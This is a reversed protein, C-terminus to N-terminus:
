EGAQREADILAAMVRILGEYSGAQTPTTVYKGNVVISPVGTLRYDRALFYAQRIKTDIESSNYVRTFDDADVGRSVFFSRLAAETSLPQRDKHIADFLPRHIKNLVDLKLATYYAKAHPIWSQNLVGPLRILEVDEPKNKLWEELFPEFSYCHPCGYWFIEVVEIKDGTQTPQAPSLTTYRDEPVGQAFAQTFVALYLMIGTTATIINRM